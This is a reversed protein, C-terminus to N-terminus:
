KDALYMLSVLIAVIADTSQDAYLHETVHRIAAATNTEWLDFYSVGPLLPEPPACREGYGLVIVKKGQTAAFVMEQEVMRGLRGTSVVVMYKSELIRTTTEMENPVDRNPSHIPLGFQKAVAMCLAVPTIYDKGRPNWTLYIPSM